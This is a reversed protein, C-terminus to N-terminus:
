SEPNWSLLVTPALSLLLIVAMNGVLGDLGEKVKSVPLLLNIEFVLILPTSSGLEMRESM